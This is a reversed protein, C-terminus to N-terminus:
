PNSQSSSSPGPWGRLARGSARLLHRAPRPPKPSLRLFEPTAAPSALGGPTRAALTSGQWRCGPGEWARNSKTKCCEDNTTPPRSQHSLPMPPWALSCTTHQPLIALPGHLRLQKERAARQGERHPGCAREACASAVTRCAARERAITKQAQLCHAARRTRSCPERAAM